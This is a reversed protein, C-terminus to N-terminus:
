ITILRPRVRAALAALADVDVTYGRPSVPAPVIELGYLGAAGAGHHTVHGGIAPPPAVIADGPSCTAIFASLNAIAGSPVRLEVHSAGFVEAALEAAIVEIEEIAELGTEYKAGPYGLSARTGLGASLMAEARPNMVNSAPNLNICEVGHIARNREVLDHLRQAVSAPALEAAQAAIADIRRAVDPELWARATLMRRDYAAVAAATM